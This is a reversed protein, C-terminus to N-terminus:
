YFFKTGKQFMDYEYTIRDKVLDYAWTEGTEWKRQIAWTCYDVLQLCPDTACPWFSTRTRRKRGATQKIVDRVADTFAVQGKKTGVSAATVHLETCAELPKPMGYLFHYYWGHQYYRADTTRIKPESKRKEMITAQISFDHQLIAAYVRERIVRKDTTAHFYDGVPAREWGLERKLALLDNAADCAPAVVTCVIFYRSINPGIKFDFSGAEDAFVHLRSM